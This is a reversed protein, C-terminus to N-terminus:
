SETLTRNISLGQNKYVKREKLEKVTFFYYFALSYSLFLAYSLTDYVNCM